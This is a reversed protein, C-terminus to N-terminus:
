LVTNIVIVNVDVVIIIVFIDFQRYLGNGWDALIFNSIMNFRNFNSM